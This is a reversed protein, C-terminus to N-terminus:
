STCQPSLGARIAEEVPSYAADVRDLRMPEKLQYQPNCAFRIRSGMNPGFGHIVMPHLM